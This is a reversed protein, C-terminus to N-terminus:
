IVFKSTVSGPITVSVFNTCDQFIGSPIRTVGEPIVLRDFRPGELRVNMGGVYLATGMLLPNAGEDAFSLAYWDVLTPVNVRALNPCGSFAGAGIEKLGTPFVVEVLNACDRFAGVPLGAASQAGSVRLTWAATGARHTLTHTGSTWPRWRFTGDGGAFTAALGDVSVTVTDGTLSHADVALPTGGPVTEGDTWAAPVSITPATGTCLTTLPEAGRGALAALVVLGSVISHKMFM